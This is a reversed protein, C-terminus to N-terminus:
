IRHLEHQHNGVEGTSSALPNHCDKGAVEADIFEYDDDKLLREAIGVSSPENREIQGNLASRDHASRKSKDLPNAAKAAYKLLFTWVNDKTKKTFCVDDVRQERVPWDQADM